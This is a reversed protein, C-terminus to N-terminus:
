VSATKSAAYDGLLEIMRLAVGLTKDAQDREPTFTALTAARIRFREASARIIPEAGELSLGGPVPQDFVGPAVDPAFADFDVHLYIEGVRGAIRDLAPLVDGQPEGQRWPVATIASRQLREREAEPSLDRVGFIVIAEEALPTSNGIQAWYARYCHGTVIAMSMGAFFGSVTTEPTNFDAHADLWVAGCKSHDFGALVGLASNCSGSLVIPLRAKEVARHVSAALGKNVQAASSATDRFPGGRDVSEIRVDLGRARLREAAGAEVLRRPGESSGAADDGAHYPVQILSVDM